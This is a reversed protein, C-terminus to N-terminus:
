APNDHKRARIKRLAHGLEHIAVSVLLEDDVETEGWDVETDISFSIPDPARGPVVDCDCRLLIRLPRKM